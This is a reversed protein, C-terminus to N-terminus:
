NEPYISILDKRRTRKNEKIQVVFKEKNKTIGYFRHLLEDKKKFNDATNPNHSSNRMLDLACNFFRLRRTRDKANKDFLHAWFINLFIKEKRFYKSRVYPTRKTRHKILDFIRDANKRVESFSTGPLKNKNTKYINM